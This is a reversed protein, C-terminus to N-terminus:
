GNEHSEKFGTEKIGDTSVDHLGDAIGVIKGVNWQDMNLRETLGDKVIVEDMLWEYKGNGDDPGVIEGEESVVKARACARIIICPSYLKLPVAAALVENVCSAQTFPFLGRVM